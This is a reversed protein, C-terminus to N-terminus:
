EKEVIYVGPLNRGMEGWDTGYGVIFGDEIDFGVYDAEIPVERREKKNIFACIRLSAPNKACIVEKLFNLTIGTDLMDEILLVHRGELPSTVDAVLEIDGPDMGARYSSAMIFDIETNFDVQRVLDGLFMFAGKLIGVFVPNKHRYDDTIKAGLESVRKSIESPGIVRRLKRGRIETIM